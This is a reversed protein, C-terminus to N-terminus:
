GERPDAKIDLTIEYTDDLGATDSHIGVLLERALGSGTRLAFAIEIADGVMWDKLATVEERWYICEPDEPDWAARFVVWVAIDYSTDPPTTALARVYLLTGQTNGINVRALKFDGAETGVDSIITSYSVLTM